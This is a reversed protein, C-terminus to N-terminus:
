PDKIACGYADWNDTCCMKMNLVQKILKKSSKKGRNGIHFALIKKTTKFYCLWM